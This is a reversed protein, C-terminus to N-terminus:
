EEGETGAIKWLYWSGLTRYPKWGETLEECEKPTLYVNGKAKTKLRTQLQALTLGSPLLATTSSSSSPVSHASLTHKLLGKQVGLDGVPLINPRRLSFMSFMNVTWPGVGKLALLTEKLEEDDEFDLLMKTSLEGSEFKEALNVVYEAKRGSLGAGRLTELRTAAPLALIQAPTPFLHAYTSALLPDHLPPLLTPYFLRIFRHTISRAALWSIQQGLLSHVLSRFADVELDEMYVTPEWKEFMAEFRPDHAVLHAKAVELDWSLTAPLLTAPTSTSSALIPGAFDDPTTLARPPSTSTPSKAKTTRTKKKAPTVFAPPVVLASSLSSTAAAPSSTSSRTRKTPSLAALPLTSSSM